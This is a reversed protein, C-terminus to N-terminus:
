VSPTANKAGSMENELEQIGAEMMNVLDKSETKQLMLRLVDQVFYRANNFGSTGAVQKELDGNFHGVIEKYYTDVQAGTTFHQVPLDITKQLVELIKVDPHYQLAVHHTMQLQMHLNQRRLEAIEKELKEKERKLLDIVPQRSKRGNRYACRCSDIHGDYSPCATVYGTDRKCFGCYFGVM